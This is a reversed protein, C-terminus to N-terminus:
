TYKRHASKVWKGYYEQDLRSFLIQADMLTFRHREYKAQHMFLPKDPLIEDPRCCLKAAARARSRLARQLPSLNVRAYVAGHCVRCAVRHHVYLAERKKGCSPCSFYYQQGGFNQQMIDYEVRQVVHEGKHNFSVSVGTSDGTITVRDPDKSEDVLVRIYTNGLLGDLRLEKVTLKFLDEVLPGIRRSHGGSGIGGM